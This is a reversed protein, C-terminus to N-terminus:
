NAPPLWTIDDFGRELYGGQALSSGEYGLPGIVAPNSYLQVLVHMRFIQFDASQEISQLADHREELSLATFQGAGLAATLRQAQSASAACFTDAIAAYHEDAVHDHPFLLRAAAALTTPSSEHTLAHQARVVAPFATLLALFNFGRRDLKV